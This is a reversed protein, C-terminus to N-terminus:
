EPIIKGSRGIRKGSSVTHVLMHQRILNLHTTDFACQRCEYVLNRKWYKEAKWPLEPEPEVEDTPVEEPILTFTFDDAM